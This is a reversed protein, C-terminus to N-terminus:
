GCSPRPRSIRIAAAAVVGAAVGRREPRVGSQEPKVILDGIMADLEDLVQKQKAQVVADTQQQGLTDKVARMNRLIDRNAWTYVVSGLAALPEELKAVRDATRGQELTLQSLAIADERHRSGDDNRPDADITTTRGNVAAQM